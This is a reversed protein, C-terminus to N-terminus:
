TTMKPRENRSKRKSSPLPQPLIAPFALFVGGVKAGFVYSIIAAIASIGAGFAFRIALDRRSVERLASLSFGVAPQGSKSMATLNDREDHFKLHRDGAQSRGAQYCALDRNGGVLVEGRGSHQPPEAISFISALSEVRRELRPRSGTPTATSARDEPLDREATERWKTSRVSVRM